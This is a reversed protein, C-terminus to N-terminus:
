GNRVYTPRAITLFSSRHISAGARSRTGTFIKKGLLSNMTGQHIRDQGDRWGSYSETVQGLAASELIAKQKDPLKQYEARTKWEALWAAQQEFYETKTDRVVPTVLRQIDTLLLNAGGTWQDERVSDIVNNVPRANKQTYTSTSAKDEDYKDQKIKVHRLYEAIRDRNEKSGDRRAKLAKAIGAMELPIGTLHESYIAAHEALLDILEDETLEAYQAAKQDVTKLVPAIQDLVFRGAGSLVAGYEGEASTGVLYTVLGKIYLGHVQDRPALRQQDGECAPGKFIMDYETGDAQDRMRELIVLENQLLTIEQGDELVFSRPATSEPM